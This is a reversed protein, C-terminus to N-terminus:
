PLLPEGMIHCSSTFVNVEKLWVLVGFEGLQKRKSTAYSAFNLPQWLFQLTMLGDM